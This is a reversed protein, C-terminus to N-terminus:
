VSRARAALSELWQARWRRPFGTSVMAFLLPDSLWHRLMMRDGETPLAGRLMRKLTAQPVRMGDHRLVTRMGPVVDDLATFNMGAVATVDMNYFFRPNCEIMWLRGDTGIRADFNYVGSLNLDRVIDAVIDSLAPLEGFRFVGDPHWYVVEKAVHGQMATVTICRDEGEVFDQILMPAYDIRALIDHLNSEDVRVVGISGARNVPKLMAPFSLRGQSFAERMAEVSAYVQGEPHLLGRTRCFAMFADKTALADFTALDPVPFSPTELYPQMRSLLRTTLADCPLIRDISHARALTDIDMAVARPDITSAVGQYPEYGFFYPHYGACYRSLALARAREPGMVHVQAGAMAASRLVRYQSVFENALLLVRRPATTLTASQSFPANM